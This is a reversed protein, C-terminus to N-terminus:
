EELWGALAERIEMLGKYRAMPEPLTKLARALGKALAGDERFLQLPHVDLHIAFLVGGSRPLAVLAQREIRIWVQAPDLPLDLRPLNRLPHQNPEPSASMGWNARLWAQGPRLRELFKGINIALADNLGPVPGHIFTMPKGLKEEFAWSSPFCVAGGALEFQGDEGRRMLLFDPEWNSALTGIRETSSTSEAVGALCAEDLVRWERILELTEDLLAGAGSLLGLTREPHSAIWKRREALLSSRNSTPAFFTRPDGPQVGLQFRHDEDPFLMRLAALDGTNM